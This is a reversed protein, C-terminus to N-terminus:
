TKINALHQCCGQTPSSHRCGREVRVGTKPMYSGGRHGNGGKNGWGWGWRVGPAGGVNGMETFDTSQVGGQQHKGPESDGSIMIEPSQVGGTQSKQATSGGTQSEQASSGKWPACKQQVAEERSHSICLDYRPHPSLDPDRGGGFEGSTFTSRTLGCPCLPFGRYVVPVAMFWASVTPYMDQVGQMRCGPCDRWGRGGGERLGRCHVLTPARCTPFHRLHHNPLCGYLAYWLNTFAM